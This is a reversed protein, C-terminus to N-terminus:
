NYYCMGCGKYVLQPACTSDLILKILDGHHISKAVWQVMLPREVVSSCFIVSNERFHAIIIAIGFNRKFKNSDILNLSQEQETVCTQSFYCM